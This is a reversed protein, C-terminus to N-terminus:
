RRLSPWQKLAAVLSVSVVRDCHKDKTKSSLYDCLTYSARPSIISNNSRKLKTNSQTGFCEGYRQM